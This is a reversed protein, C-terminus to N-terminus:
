TLGLRAIQALPKQVRASRLAKKFDIPRGLWPLEVIKKRDFYEGLLAVNTDTAADATEPSMLVVVAKARSAAPLAALTLRLHNIVGLRNVGVIIPGARLARIVDRSDVGEGLPSLLGGAGEIVMLDGTQQLARVHAIIEPLTVRQRERRAALVPAIPERFHWPNIEDLTLEGGLAEALLKADDRGGSCVPKCALVRVGTQRLYGALLATLVTKGAGTDTGTIFWPARKM